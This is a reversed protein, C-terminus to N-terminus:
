RKMRSVIEGNIVAGICHSTYEFPDGDFLALDGDKGVELSGVRKDIGLIQASDITISSLAQEFTLGNAAAMAAEWLLVRTKPVYPEYGAQMAVPIGAAVLKSATEFSFNEREGTPRVMTPHILVPVGAAKIEDILLYAESAGDLWLTINFESALRLANGIDQARHATVILALKGNLVRGLTELRLDRAPQEKEDDGDALAQQDLYERAKIFQERLMAIMKGRTGPSKTDEKRADGTLTAAVARTEVLLADEVTNGVTKVILTQGSILEGPAHGTHITTVGFSRVWEILDEHANYADLARLEPQIPEARELQDQDHDYNLIGSLGVTCHADILGPTVVKAKLVKFGDPVKITDAKGVATIKGDQVVVMGDKIPEGAMTYVTGGRVAVQALAPTALTISLLSALLNM